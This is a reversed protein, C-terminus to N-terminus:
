NAVHGTETEQRRTQGQDHDNECVAQQRGCRRSMRGDCLSVVVMAVGYWPLAEPLAVASAARYVAVAGTIRVM